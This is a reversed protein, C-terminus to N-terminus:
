HVDTQSSPQDGARPVMRPVNELYKGFWRRHLLELLIWVALGVAISPWLTLPARLMTGAGVFFYALHAPLDTRFFYDILILVVSAALLLWDAHWSALREFLQSLFDYM